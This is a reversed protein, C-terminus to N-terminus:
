RKINTYGVVGSGILKKIYYAISLDRSHGNIVLDGNKRAIHGDADVLGALWYGSEEPTQPKVHKNLM